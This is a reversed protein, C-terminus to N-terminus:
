KEFVLYPWKRPMEDSNSLSKKDKLYSLRCTIRSGVKPETFGKLFSVPIALEGVWGDGAPQVAWKLGSPDSDKKVEVPKGTNTSGEITLKSSNAGDPQISLVRDYRSPTDQQRSPMASLGVKFVGSASPAKMAVYIFRDDWRLIGQAKGLEAAGALDVPADQGWEDLKGDIQMSEAHHMSFSPTRETWLDSNLERDPPIVRAALSPNVGVLYIVSGDLKCTLKGDATKIKKEGGMLDVVTVEPVAVDIAVDKPTELTWLALTHTGGREFLMAGIGPGLWLDGVFRSGDIMRACNAHAILVPKPQGSLRFFGFWNERDTIDYERDALWHPILAKVDEAYMMISQRATREAQLAESVSHKRSDEPATPWGYETVYIDLSKGTRERVMDRLNRLLPRVRHEPLPTFCYPHCYIIDMGKMGDHELFTSAFAGRGGPDAGIKANPRVEKVVERVMQAWEAFEEASMEDWVENGIEFINQEVPIKAIEGKLWAQYPEKKPVSCRAWSKNKHKAKWADVTGYRDVDYCAEPFGEIKLVVNMPYKTVLDITAMVGPEASTGQNFQYRTWQLGLKATADVFTPVNYTIDKRWWVGPSGISFMKLGFRSGSQLADAATRDVLHVVGFSFPDTGVVKVNGPNKIRNVYTTADAKVEKGAADHLTLSVKLDYYGPEPTGLDIKLNTAEGANSSVPIVISKTQGFFDTTTAIAEGTGTPLGTVVADFVVPSGAPFLNCAKNRQLTIKPEASVKATLTSCAIAFAFLFSRMNILM